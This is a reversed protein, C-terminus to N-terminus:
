ISRTTAGEKEEEAVVQNIVYILALSPATIVAIYFISRRFLRIADKRRSSYSECVLSIYTASWCGNTGGQHAAREITKNWDAENNAWPFGLRFCPVQLWCVFFPSFPSVFLFFFFFFFFFCIIFHRGLIYFLVFSVRDNWPEGPGLLVWKYARRWIVPRQKAKQDSSRVLSAARRKHVVM